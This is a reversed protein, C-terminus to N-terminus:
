IAAFNAIMSLKDATDIIRDYFINAREVKDWFFLYSQSLEFDKVEYRKAFDHKLVNLLSFLWCRGSRKQNSVKGTDIEVSYTHNLKAVVRNDKATNNIGNKMVSRQLVKNKPDSDYKERMADFDAQTLKTHAM